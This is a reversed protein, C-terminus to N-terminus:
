AFLLESIEKSFYEIEEFSKVGTLVIKGSFFILSALNYKPIKFILGPFQEPEYELEKHLYFKNYVERLHIKSELKCVFVANRIHIRPKPLFPINIKELHEQLFKYAQLNKEINKSGTCNVKGSKFLLLTSNLSKIRFSLGPFLFPKYNVFSFYKEKIEELNFYDSLTCSTVINQLFFVNEKIKFSGKQLIKKIKSEM